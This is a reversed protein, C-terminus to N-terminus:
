FCAAYIIIARVIHCVCDWAGVIGIDMELEKRGRRLTVGVRKLEKNIM